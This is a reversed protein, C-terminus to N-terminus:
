RRFLRSFYSIVLAASIAAATFGFNALLRIKEEKGALGFNYATFDLVALLIVLWILLMIKLYLNVKLWAGIVKWVSKRKLQKIRKKRAKIARFLPRFVKILVISLLFIFIVGSIVGVIQWFLTNTLIIQVLSIAFLVGFAIFASFKLSKNIGEFSIKLPM